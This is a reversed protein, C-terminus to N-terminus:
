FNAIKTKSWNRRTFVSSTSGVLKKAGVGVLHLLKAQAGVSFKATVWFEEGDILIWIIGLPRSKGAKVPEDACVTRSVVLTVNEALAGWLFNQFLMALNTICGFHLPVKGLFSPLFLSQWGQGSLQL